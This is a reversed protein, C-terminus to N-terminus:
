RWRVSSVLHSCLPFQAHAHDASPRSREDTRDMSKGSFHISFDLHNGARKRLGGLSGAFGAFAEADIGCAGVGVVALHDFGLPLPGVGDVENDDGRGIMKM